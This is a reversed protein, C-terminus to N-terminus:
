PRAFATWGDMFEAETLGLLGPLDPLAAGDRLAVLVDPLRERPPGDALYRIMLLAQMLHRGSLEGEFADLPLPGADLLQDIQGNLDPQPFLRNQIYYCIGEAAWSAMSEIGLDYAAWQHAIEHYFVPRASGQPPDYTTVSFREITYGASSPTGVGAHYIDRATAAVFAHYRDTSDFIVLTPPADPLGAHFAEEFIRRADAAHRAVEDPDIADVNTVVRVGDRSYARSAGARRAVEALPELWPPEDGAHPPYTVDSVLLTGERSRSRLVLARADRWAARGRMRWFPVEIRVWDGEPIDVRAWQGGVWVEVALPGGSERRARFAVGSRTSLDPLAEDLTIPEAIEWTTVAAALLLLM